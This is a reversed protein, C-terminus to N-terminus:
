YHNKSTLHYKGCHPCRYARSVPKSSQKRRLHAMAQMAAAPYDYPTKACAVHAIARRARYKSM